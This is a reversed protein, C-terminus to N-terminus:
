VTGKGTEYMVVRDYGSEQDGEKWTWAPFVSSYFNQGGNLKLNRCVGFFRVKLAQIDKAPIEIWCVTGESPRPFKQEAEAM